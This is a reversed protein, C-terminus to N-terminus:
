VVYMVKNRANSILVDIKFNPNKSYIILIILHIVTSFGYAKM